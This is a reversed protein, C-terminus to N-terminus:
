LDNDEISEKVRSYRLAKDMSLMLRNLETRMQRARVDRIEKQNYRAQAEKLQAIYGEIAAAKEGTLLKKMDQLNAISEDFARNDRLRNKGLKNVLEQHWTKWFLFHKKYTDSSEPRSYDKERYVFVEKEKEKKKRVFKKKWAPGCGSTELTLLLAAMIIGITKSFASCKKLNMRM